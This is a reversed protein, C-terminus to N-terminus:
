KEPPAFLAPDITANVKTETWFVENSKRGDYYLTVHRAQLWSPNELVVFDDYVRLHWGKPTRFGMTRIAHSQQDIGFLTKGGKPDVLEVMYLAHGGVDDDPLRTATFGPKDAQRIIGFGFNSAWFKDAEAKPTIGRETWTTEGDYGIEFILADANKAIIRVKGDAGHAATRDPDFKRWMRYDSAITRPQHGKPGYFIAHGSLMLTQANAWDDGGAAKRAMALIAAGDPEAEMASIASASMALLLLMVIQCYRLM